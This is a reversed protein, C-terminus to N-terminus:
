YRLVINFQTYLLRFAPIYIDEVNSPFLGVAQLPM